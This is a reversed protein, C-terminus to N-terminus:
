AQAGGTRFYEPHTIAWPFDRLIQSESFYMPAVVLIGYVGAIQFVGKTQM